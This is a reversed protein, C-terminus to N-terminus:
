GDAGASFTALGLFSPVVLRTAGSSESDRKGARPEGAGEDEWEFLDVGVLAADSSSPHVEISFSLM